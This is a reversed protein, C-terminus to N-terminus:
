ISAVTKSDNTELKEVENTYGSSARLDLCVREDSKVKNCYDEDMLEQYILNSMYDTVAAASSGDCSWAVFQKCFM